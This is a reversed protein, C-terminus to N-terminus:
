QKRAEMSELMADALQKNDSRILEVMPGFTERMAEILSRRAAEDDVAAICASAVYMVGGYAEFPDMGDIVAKTVALKIAGILSTRADDDTM